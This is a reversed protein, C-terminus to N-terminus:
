RSGIHPACAPPTKGRRLCDRWSTGRRSTSRAASWRGNSFQAKRYMEVAKAMFETNGPQERFVTRYARGADAYDGVSEYLEAALQAAEKKMQQETALQNEEQVAVTLKLDHMRDYVEAAKRLLEQRQEPTPAVSASKQLAQGYAYQISVKNSMEAAKAYQELSAALDERAKEIMERRQDPDVKSMADRELSESLVRNIVGLNYHIESYDPAYKMLEDYTDKSGQQNYQMNQAHAKKYYSTIFTPNWEIAANFEDIAEKPRQSQTYMLGTNNHKAGAFYRVGYGLNSFLFPHSLPLPNVWVLLAAVLAATRWRRQRPSMRAVRRRVGATSEEHWREAM